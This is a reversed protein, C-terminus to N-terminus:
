LDLTIRAMPQMSFVADLLEETIAYTNMAAHIQKGLRQRAIATVQPEV